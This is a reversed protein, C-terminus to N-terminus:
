SAVDQDLRKAGALAWARAIRGQQVEYTMILQAKGPGEPFTRTVEEHDVVVNGMVVRKVLVAHLNPEAFRAAFRERFAATGEALLNSPHEFLQADEAYTALLGELDRANFAELQRQVVAESDNNERMVASAPHSQEPGEDRQLRKGLSMVADEAFGISEYFGIVAANSRRVQLNIKPCGADKLIEEAKGMLKRAYGRRQHGPHVALYNIWGRHGEYGVMCSGVVEGEVKGILLWDPKVALKRAIDKQPDNQPVVLGCAGWLAILAETDQPAFSRIIFEPM